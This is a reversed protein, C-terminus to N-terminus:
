SGGRSVKFEVGQITENDCYHVYRADPSLKWDAAAPISKNDGTAVINVQPGLPTAREFFLRKPLGTHPARCGVAHAAGWGVAGSGAM